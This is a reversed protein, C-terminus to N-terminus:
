SQVFNQSVVSLLELYIGFDFFYIFQTFVFFAANQWYYDFFHYM